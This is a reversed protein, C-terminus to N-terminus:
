GYDSVKFTHFKYILFTAFMPFAVAIGHALLESYTENVGYSILFYNMGISIIWVVPYFSLNVIVFSFAQKRIDKNSRRFVFLSNLLFAIIMGVLYAFTVAWPFSLWFSLIIRALWHLLAALGGVMCFFLFQKSFFHHIM